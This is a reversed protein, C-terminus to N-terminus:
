TQVTGPFLCTLNSTRLKLWKLSTQSVPGSRVSQCVCACVSVCRVFVTDGGNVGNVQHLYNAFYFYFHLCYLLEGPQHTGRYVNKVKNLNSMITKWRNNIDDFSASEM